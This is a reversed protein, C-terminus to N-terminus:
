FTAKKRHHAHHCAACLWLIEFPKTYDEHHAHVKESGCKACPKKIINGAQVQNNLKIQAKHGLPNKIRWERTSKIRLAVSKRDKSRERNKERVIIINKVNYEKTDKRTCVKCKNLHGDKMRKHPYYECIDKIEGCKFCKKM